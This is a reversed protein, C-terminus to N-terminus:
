RTKPTAPALEIIQALHQAAGLDAADYDLARVNPGLLVHDIHLLPFARPYTAIPGIGADSLAHRLNPALTLIARSARPTNFDGAVLDPPPFGLTPAAEPTAHFGGNPLLQGLRLAREPVDLGHDDRRLFPGQFANIATRADAIMRRRYIWADSPVDIFWAVLPRDFGPASVELYLAEGGKKSADTEPWFSPRDPEPPINLPTWAFRSIPFRSVAVLTGQRVAYTHQGLAARFATWDATPHPNSVLVVDPNLELLRAHFDSMRHWGPNWVVVRLTDPASPSPLIARHWRWDGLVLWLALATWAFAPLARAFRSTPRRFALWLLLGLGSTTLTLLPPIWALYQTPHTHDNILAGLLWLTSSCLALALGLRAILPKLLSRRTM